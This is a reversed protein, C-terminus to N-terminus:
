EIIDKVLENIKNKIQYIEKRIIAREQLTEQLFLEKELIKIQNIYYNIEENKDM